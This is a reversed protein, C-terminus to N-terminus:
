LVAMYMLGLACMIVTHLLQCNYIKGKINMSMTSKGVIKLM